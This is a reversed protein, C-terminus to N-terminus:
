TFCYLDNAIELTCCASIEVRVRSACAMNFALCRHDTTFIIKLMILDSGMPEIGRILLRRARIKCTRQTSGPHVASMFRGASRLSYMHDIDFRRTGSLPRLKDAGSLKPLLQLALEPARRDPTHSVVRFSVFIATASGGGRPATADM